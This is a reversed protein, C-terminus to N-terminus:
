LCTFAQQCTKWPDLYIFLHHLVSGFNQGPCTKVNFFDKVIAYYHHKLTFIFHQM